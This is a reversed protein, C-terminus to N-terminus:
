RMIREKRMGYGNLDWNQSQSLSQSYRQFSMLIVYKLKLEQRRKQDRIPPMLSLKERNGRM